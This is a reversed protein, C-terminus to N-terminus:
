TTALDLSHSRRRDSAATVTQVNAPVHDRPLGSGHLPTTATVVTEGAPEGAAADGGALPAAEALVGGVLLLAGCFSM